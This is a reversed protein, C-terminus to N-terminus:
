VRFGQGKVRVRFATRAFCERAFRAGELLLMEKYVIHFTNYNRWAVMHKISKFSFGVGSVRFGLVKVRVRVRFATRAFCERAFRAGELLLM